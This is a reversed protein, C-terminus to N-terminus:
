FHYTRGPECIAVSDLGLADLEGAIQEFFKPKIHVALVPVGPRIKGVERAFLEPTLHKATDALWAMGEPFAVELFVAKLNAAANTREWLAETPGTDGAIVVTAGPGEVILGLTPVLHDVEVPTIRLGAVEVPIGPRLTEVRLFPADPPALRFLDPWLRDNFVDRHLCDLVTESAHITVCDAGAGLGNEIFIPLSGIHDMHTHSLFVHKVRAQEEASALLGLSGADIAVVDDILFTTLFQCATASTTVTSPLLTVKV